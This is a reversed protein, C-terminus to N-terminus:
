KTIIIRQVQAKSASIYFCQYIGSSIHSLNIEILEQDIEELSYILIGSADFIQLSKTGPTFDQFSISFNGNSPNPYIEFSAVSLEDIGLGIALNYSNQCSETWEVDCCAPNAAIVAMYYPDNEAYPSPACPTPGVLIDYALQCNNNWQVYCCLPDAAIVQLYYPDNTPYPSPVCTNPDPGALEDYQEQCLGDWFVDCCYPDQAIVQLYAPDNPPYPSSVCPTPGSSLANYADQCVGDWETDCCYPDAAIVQLYIPDNPDYPSPVCGGRDNAFDTNTVILPIMRTQTQRIRLSAEHQGYLVFISVISFFTSFSKM